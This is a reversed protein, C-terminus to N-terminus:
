MSGRGDEIIRYIGYFLGYGALVYLGFLLTIELAFWSAQATIDQLMAFPNLVDWSNLRLFRGLYMAYGTLLCVAALISNASIRGLKKLLQMHILYMSLLGTLTSFVIGFGIHLLRAWIMLDNSYPGCAANASYYDLRSIHIMDTVIYPANPFFLLWLVFLIIPKARGPRGAARHFGKAFCLPLIALFVNWVMMVHAFSRTQVIVPISLLVYILYCIAFALLQRDKFLSKM